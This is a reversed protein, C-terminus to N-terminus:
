SNTESWESFYFQLVLKKNVESSIKFKNYTEPYDIQWFISIRHILIFDDIIKFYPIDILENVNEGEKFNVYLSSKQL